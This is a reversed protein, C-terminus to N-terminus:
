NVSFVKDSSLDQAFTWLKSMKPLKSCWLTSSSSINQSGITYFRDLQEAVPM